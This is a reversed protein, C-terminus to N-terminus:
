RPHPHVAMNFIVPVPKSEFMGPRFKWERAARLAAEDLCPDVAKVIKADRVKGTEDVVAEIIAIGSVERGLCATYDVEVRKELIPATVGNGVRMPTRSSITPPTIPDDKSELASSHEPQRDSDPAAAPPGVCAVSLVLFPLILEVRM